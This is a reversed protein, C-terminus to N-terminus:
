ILPAIIPALKGGQERRQGGSELAFHSALLVEKSISHETTEQCGTAAASNHPSKGGRRILRDGGGSSRRVGEEKCGLSQHAVPRPAMWMGHRTCCSHIGSLIFCTNMSGHIM